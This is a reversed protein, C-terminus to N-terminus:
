VGYFHAVPHYGFPALAGTWKKVGDYRRFATDLSKVMVLHYWNESPCLGARLDVTTRVESISM